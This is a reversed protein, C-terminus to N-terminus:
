GAFAKNLDKMEELTCCQNAVLVGQMYGLWRGLKGESFPEESAEARDYMSQLHQMDVGVEEFSVDGYGRERALDLTARMAERMNMVKNREKLLSEILQAAEVMDLRSVFFYKLRHVLMNIEADTM